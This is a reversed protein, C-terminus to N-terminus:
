LAPVRKLSLAEKAFDLRVAVELVEERQRRERKERARRLAERILADAAVFAAFMLVVFLATM